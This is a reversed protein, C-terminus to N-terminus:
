NIKRQRPMKHSNKMRGRCTLFHFNLCNTLVRVVFCILLYILLWSQCSVAEKRKGRGMFGKKKVEGGTAHKRSEAEAEDAVRRLEDVQASLQRRSEEADRAIQDAEKAKAKLEEVEQLTPAAAMSAGYDDYSETGTNVDASGSSFAYSPGPPGGYSPTGGMPGDGEFSFASIASATRNHTAATAGYADNSTAPQPVQNQSYSPVQNQNYSPTDSTYGPTVDEASDESKQQEIRPPLPQAPMEGKTQPASPGFDFLDGEYAPAPAPQWKASDIAKEIGEGAEEM